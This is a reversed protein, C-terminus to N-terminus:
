KQSRTIRFGIIYYRFSLVHRIRGSARLTGPIDDWNGGRVVIYPEDAKRDIPIVIKM